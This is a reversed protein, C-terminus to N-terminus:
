VLGDPEVGSKRTKYPSPTRPNLTLKAYTRRQPKTGPKTGPKTVLGYSYYSVLGYGYGSKRQGLIKIDM